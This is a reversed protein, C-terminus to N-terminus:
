KCLPAIYNYCKALHYQDQAVYWQVDAPRWDFSPNVATSYWRFELFLILENHLAVMMLTLETILHDQNMFMRSVHIFGSYQSLNVRLHESIMQRLETMVHDRNM